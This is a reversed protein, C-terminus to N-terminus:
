LTGYWEVLRSRTPSGRFFAPIYSRDVVYKLLEERCGKSLDGQLIKPVEPTGVASITM